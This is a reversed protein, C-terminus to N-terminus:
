FLRVNSFVQLSGHIKVHNQKKTIWAGAPDYQLDSDWDFDSKKFRQSKWM